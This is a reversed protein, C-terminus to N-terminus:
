GHARFDWAIVGYGHRVFLAYMDEPISAAHGHAVLIVMGNRPPTYWAHLRIGDETTLEITQFEIGRARLLDGSATHRPPRLFTQTQAYAAYITLGALAFSLSIGLFIGLKWWYRRGRRASRM